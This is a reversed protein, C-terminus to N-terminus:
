SSPYDLLRNILISGIVSVNESLGPPSSANM